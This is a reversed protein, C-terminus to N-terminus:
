AITPTLYMPNFLVERCAKPTKQYISHLLNKIGLPSALILFHFNAPLKQEKIWKISKPTPDFAYISSQHHNSCAMDFSIDKGIGFSYIVSQNTLLNPTSTFVEMVPEM